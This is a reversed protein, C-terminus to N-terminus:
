DDLIEFTFGTAGLAEAIQACHYKLRQNASFKGWDKKLKPSTCGDKGTMYDYAEKSLKINQKAPKSKRVAVNIIEKNKSKAGAVEMRFYDYCDQKKKKSNGSCEQESLMVSGPLTLSLNVKIESM